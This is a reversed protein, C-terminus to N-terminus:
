KKAKKRKAVLEYSHDIQQKLMKASLCNNLRITNWHKKNMHYGGTVCDYKDRLEIALDPYCKVNITVEEADLPMLLFMKGHVKFVLTVDDFPLCEEVGEKELCYSRIFEIDM